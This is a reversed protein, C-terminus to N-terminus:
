EGPKEKVAIGLVDPGLHTAIVPGLQSVTVRRHPIVPAILDALKRADDPTTNYLISIEEPNEIEGAYDALARIAKSRTRTREFPVIQGNDVRLLPKLQLMTGVLQAAKGIRGGRHLHELTDVFFVVHYNDIEGRLTALITDLDLGADALEAARLAQYGLAMSGTFTDFVQIRLEDSLNQAAINASQNTGSLKASITLCIIDTLGTDEALKRYAEEWSGVSPQSTTPLKESTAMKQMFQDTTIDVNDLYVDEGFHLNLPVIVIGHRAADEFTLDSTSDTIVAVKRTSAM